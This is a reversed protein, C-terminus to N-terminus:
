VNRVEGSLPTGESRRLDGSRPSFPETPSRQGDSLKVERRRVRCKEARMIAVIQRVTEDLENERNVVVYDFEPIHEMEERATAIRQQLKEPPESRRRKLRAVLEEDSSATLFITIVGPVKRRVTAAGQVDLRMLVDKGSALAQRVQEKPVGKLEGYVIAHELLEGREQMARFEAESLFLYDRGDVEGPRRPRTTATVVFHFPYGLERMRKLVADKGVGSPGSILVLLPCPEKVRRYWEDANAEEGM